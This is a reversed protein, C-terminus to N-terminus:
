DRVHAQAHQGCLDCQLWVRLDTSCVSRLERWRNKDAFRQLSLARGKRVQMTTSNYIENGMVMTQGVYPIITAYSAADPEIVFPQELVYKGYIPPAGPLNAPRKYTAVNSTINNQPVCRNIHPPPLTCPTADWGGISACDAFLTCYGGGPRTPPFFEITAYQCAAISACKSICQAPASTGQFLNNPKTSPLCLSGNHGPLWDWGEDPFPGPPPVPPPPPNVVSAVKRM